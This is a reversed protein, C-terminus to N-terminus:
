FADQELLQLRSIHRKSNYGEVNKILRVHKYQERM